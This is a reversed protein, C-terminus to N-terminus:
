DEELLAQIEELESAIASDLEGEFEMEIKQPPTINESEEVSWEEEKEESFIEALLYDALDKINSKEFLTATSISFSFTAMLKNRLEVAMLSDMGMRFFGLEPDPLKSKSLGIIKAVDNQLHEILIELRESEPAQYLQQLFESRQESAGEGSRAESDLSIEALFSRKGGLEYLEKFVDWNIDAVVTQPRDSALVKELAAIAKEPELPKVGMQNLWNMAEGAAMGGGSWPGWNISYTPLGLSQRYDTLGDLFHNAAAYHAQGKSGWVSAISSFNVFFDLDLKETLQHLVWGGVVKPRLIAELQSFELEQILDSGIVGAAHIVGKLPPMTEQVQKFAKEMDQQVSVDAQTVVVEVGQKRLSEIRLQAQDSPQSRSILVLHQCGKEVLWQAINLGLAGTGGTILYSGEKSLSVPNSEALLQRELRAVYIEGNRIALRDEEAEDELVQLLIEAESTSSQRDLDILGGWLQPHELSLVKGLGWLPTQAIAVEEVPLVSQSAQTILWLQPSSSKWYKEMAQVLHLVSGCSNKQASELAPQTLQQTPTTELSWLHIIRPNEGVIAKADQCFREFDAPNSPNLEWSATEKQQYTEGMFVTFCRDDRKELRNTLKEGVGDRDSFIIWTKPQLTKKYEQRPAAKQWEVGYFLKQLSVDSYHLPKQLIAQNWKYIEDVSLQEQKQATMIVYSVLKKRLMKYLNDYSQLGVRANENLNSKKCVYNLNEPFNPDDLGNAIENSIDVYRIIKLHSESLLDLWEQQTALYSSHADYDINFSANSIFDSIVFDGRDNLHNKINLFLEKKKKIHCIVEFGYILDYRDPFEDQSSDGNVIKVREELNLQSIKKNGLEVQGESITYGCLELHHYKQGLAILDTGHGCGIDLVKRCASFDVKQWAINRIEQQATSALKQYKEQIKLQAFFLVWSFGKIIGPLPIYNLIAEEDTLSALEDYFDGVIDGRDQLYKQYRAKLIDLLKPLLKEEDETLEESLKLERILEEPDGLDLPNSSHHTTNRDQNKTTEVWYRERQFPYTPLEVKQNTYDRGFGSWDVNFGKVYLQGLSLLMQQWEEVGPRLSPLWVGVDESLCQRAMGLLIPKPGIELFVNYGEEHLTKMSQAFKVPQRVHNVWYKATTMDSSVKEGTVNSIIPIQPQSYTVEQAVAEFEALMPEMLPSHFAHSVQLHKTKVGMAELKGCITAIAGSEGSIVTSETGNIAAITVQNSYEAIAERVQSESAMVAVMEGGPPLEQMLRGRMAILKLGDELSFVGAVTAAVYEGVSHGMVLNPKIGWSEWLKALAYEVSFLAPQTYATQDLVSSSSQSYIVELLPVELHKKLIEHCQDLSKRFTPQTEYLQRGMDIYQSGQGTFLFAIEKEKSEAKGRVVENTEDGKLFDGLKQQLDSNSEAVIALREAFPTRGTNASFCINQLSAEAKSELYTQYNEALERLAQETQASLTLIQQPRELVPENNVKELPEELVIHANVGGIGFSSLGARRPIEEGSENSLREWDQTEELMYFPADKLSIRPNLEKFNVIKPLKKHKMALLVKILGAIGAAGELHGINSKVAGIGCYAKETKEVGYQQYLQRYARKLANIEIPDGLPTGTGHSEIYSVTDPSINANTYASRIVQAQAYVNPSTITRARGGHNIASGQIVGYIRDGDEIAKALPKLLVVGAGEGRVYGDADSSFTRCQGTPSLMGLQSMQIYTTSTFLVSIGGVLAMECESEKLSKVAYHLAVLSSSCATDIPISPGHLNFFSSIRNALMSTWTGTGSHGEVNEQNQNMLLISDYSCAGIFVGIDKGLVQSLSYGADEVCSWSLELLIRQQPDINKAERPSIDFFQADFQDIDEILGLWKSITKHPTQPNPSYYDKINWRNEPIETISNIGQELNQWFQHYDKAGPFRCAMGIIAIDAVDKKEISYQM